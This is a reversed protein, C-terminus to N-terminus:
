RKTTIYQTARNIINDFADQIEASNTANPFEATIHVEQQITDTAGYVSGASINGLGFSMALSANTIYKNLMSLTSADLARVGQVATLINETDKANLVMEPKSKSGDLWAPGTFDALGGTAYKLMVQNKLGGGGGGTTSASRRDWYKVTVVVSGAALATITKGSISLKSPDSISQGGMAFGPNPNHSFTGTTGVALKKPGSPSGGVAKGQAPGTTTLVKYTITTYERGAGTRGGSDGNGGGGGGSGTNTNGTTSPTTTDSFKGTGSSKVTSPATANSLKAQAQITKLISQYMSEYTSIVNKLKGMYTDWATTASHIAPLLDKSLSNATKSTQDQADKTVKNYNTVSDSMSNYDLNVAATVADIRSQMTDMAAPIQNACANELAQQLGETDQIMAAITQNLGNKANESHEVLQQGYHESIALNSTILNDSAIQYQEQIFNTQEKFQNMVTQIKDYKEEETLTQDQAIEKIKSLTNQYIELLQSELDQVRNVALDNIKQLVDEYEQQKTMIDDQDATYQYVYNGGSDRTLRVTSKANQAEELAIKKLLLEYQLQNMEIDYETLENLESQKNIRDQLAALLNKNVKSSTENMTKEIQRNLKNVEYLERASTVYRSQEEQYYSYADALDQISNGVGAIREELDKFIIEIENNFAETIQNLTSETDSLINSNVDAITKELDEYQQRETETLGEASNMRDLYYQEESRLIDLYEKQMELSQLNYEYQSDYFKTLDKLNSGKGILGLISIYSSMAESANKVKETQEDFADSAMELTNGYLEEIEKKLDQINGLNDLIQENVDKLGEVYDAQNLKGSAFAADLEEKSRSLADLNSTALETERVLNNMVDGQKELLEDYTDNLYDLFDKEADTIDVHIEVKYQIGELTKESIKNQAELLNNQQEYITSVTEEYNEIWKKKEEYWEDWKTKEEEAAEQESASMANYRDVFENYKGIINDMVQDYNEINGFEDFTAGLSAVRQTDLALYEKAEDIYRQYADCQKETLDIEKSIYDLYSKGYVRSKKKDIEDFQNSLRELVKNVHHYREKEDEPKKKDIKKAKGGGGGGGGGGKSKHGGINGGHTGKNTIAKIALGTWTVSTGNDHPTINTYTMKSAPDYVSAGATYTIGPIKAPLEKEEYQLDFGLAAAAAEVDGGAVAIAAVYDDLATYLQPSVTALEGFAIPQNVPLNDMETAITNIANQLKPSIAVNEGILIQEAVKAQLENYADIDGDMAKELLDATEASTMFEESLDNLSGTPVDLVDEFASRMESLTKNCKIVDGANDKLAKSWTKSNDRVTKLGKQVRALSQAQKYQGETNTATIEGAEKMAETYQIFEDKTMGVSEAMKTLNNTSTKEASSSLNDVTEQIQAISDTINSNAEGIFLKGDSTYEAGQAKSWQDWREGAAKKDDDSTFFEIYEDRSVAKQYEGYKNEYFGQNNANAKALALAAEACALLANACSIAASDVNSFNIGYKELIDRDSKDLTDWSKDNNKAEQANEIAQQLKQLDSYKAEYGNEKKNYWNNTDADKQIQTEAEIQEQYQKQADASGYIAEILKKTADSLTDYELKGDIIQQAKLEAEEETLGTTKLIATYYSKLQGQIVSESVYDGTKYNKYEKENTEKNTRTISTSYGLADWDMDKSLTGFKYDGFATIQDLGYKAMSQSIYDNYDQFSLNDATLTGGMIAAAAESPSMGASKAYQLITEPSGAINKLLSGGELLTQRADAIKNFADVWADVADQAADIHEQALQSGINKMADKASALIQKWANDADVGMENLQDMIAQTIEANTAKEFDFGNSKLTDWAEDVAGLIENDDIEFLDSLMGIFDEKTQMKYKNGTWGSLLSQDDKWLWSKKSLGDLTKEANKYVAAMQQGAVANERAYESFAKNALAARQIANTTDNWADLYEAQALIQQDSFSLEGTTIASSMVNAADSFKEADEQQASQRAKITDMENKYIDLAQQRANAINQEQQLEMDNYEVITDYYKQAAELKVEESYKGTTDEAIKKYHEQLQTNLEMREGIISNQVEAIKSLQDAKSLAKFKTMDMNVKGLAKDLLEFAKSGEQPLEEIDIDSLISEMEKLDSLLQITDANNTIAQEQYSANQANIDQVTALEQAYEAYDQDTSYHEEIFKAGQQQVIQGDSDLIIQPKMRTGSQKLTPMETVAAAQAAREAETSNVLEDMSWGFANAVKKLEKSDTPLETIANALRQVKTTVSDVQSGMAKWLMENRMADNIATGADEAEAVLRNYEDIVAQSIGNAGQSQKEMIFDTLDKGKNEEQQSWTDYETNIRDDTKTFTIDKKAEWQGKDNKVWKSLYSAYEQDNLIDAEAAAVIASHDYQEEGLGIFTDRAQEAATKEAEAAKRANIAAEESTKLYDDSLSQLYNQKDEYSMEYFDNWAIIDNSGWNIADYLKGMEEFSMDEKLLSAAKQAGNYTDVANNYIRRQQKNDLMAKIYDGNNQSHAQIIGYDVDELNFGKSELDMLAQAASNLDGYVDYASQLASSYATLGSNVGLVTQTSDMAMQKIEEESSGPNTTRLHDEFNNLTTVYDDWFANFDYGNEGAQKGIYRNSEETIKAEGFVKLAEEYATMEESLTNIVKSIQQYFNDETNVGLADMEDRLKSLDKYVSYRYDASDHDSILLDLDENGESESFFIDEMGMQSILDSYTLGSSLNYGNQGKFVTGSKSGNLHYADVMISKAGSNRTIGYPTGYDDLHESDLAIGGYGKAAMKAVNQYGQSALFEKKQGSTAFYTGAKGATGASGVHLASNSALREKAIRYNGEATLFVNEGNGFNGSSIQQLKKILEEYNGTLNQVATGTIDYENALQSALSALRADEDSTRNKINYLDNFQSILNQLASNSEQNNGISENLRETREQELEQALKKAREMQGVLFGAATGFVSAAIVFPDGTTLASILNTAGSAINTFKATISSDDWNSMLNSFSSFSASAASISRVVTNLGEQLPSIKFSHSSDNSFKKIALALANIQDETLDAQEALAQLKDRPMALKESLYDMASAAGGHAVNELRDLEAIIEDFVGVQGTQGQEKIKNFKEILSDIASTDMGKQSFSTKLTTLSLELGQVASEAEGTDVNVFSEFNAKAHALQQTAGELKAMRDILADLYQTSQQYKSVDLQQGKFLENQSIALFEKNNYNSGGKELLAQAFDNRRKQLQQTNEAEKIPAYAGSSNKAESLNGIDRLAKEQKDLEANYDTQESKLQNIKEAQKSLGDLYNEAAAKQEASMNKEVALFEMRKKLLTDTATLAEKTSNSIAPNSLAESIQSQMIVNSQKYKRQDTTESFLSKVKAKFGISKGNQDTMNFSKVFQGVKTVMGTISSAIKSSFTTALASGVQIVIGSLGGFGKIMENVIDLVKSMTKTASILGKEPILNQYIGELSAKVRKSAAEWSEAQIDAQKQLTGEAGEAINMSKKYMDQNEMLAMLQTYQRKGAVVQAVATKEASTMGQWKGMLEEIVGGMEKLEGTTNLINVGVTALKSSVTGLSMGDELTKGVKLDGMRALITKFSTGISEPAERTVSAVTAIISSMQEMSVGVTNATAAVKQMATAIEETSTATAAGLAAMIDVYKELEAEGVQYSNWVATLMESMEEASASFAVNAAKTTIAAKKAVMEANDGQQFYILSADTYAKTTTSLQKAAKNAQVAFKTMDDASYGTVIRIDNLSSNLDKAYNIASSLGSELGHVFTSSLEWKVTNKLTVMMKDLMTTTKTIPIEMTAIARSLALFANQGSAGCNLFKRSLETVSTGSNQLSKNLDSFNWKGTNQNFAKSLNEQLLNAAQAAESLDSSIGLDSEANAKLKDLQTNLDQLAKKAQSTDANFGITYQVNKAM